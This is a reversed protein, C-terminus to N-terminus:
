SCKTYFSFRSFYFAEPRFVFLNSAKLWLPSVLLVGISLGELPSDRKRAGRANAKRTSEGRTRVITTSRAMNVSQKSPYKARFNLYVVLTPAIKSGNISLNKTYKVNHTSKKSDLIDTQCPAAM